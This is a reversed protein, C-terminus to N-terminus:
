TEICNTLLPRNNELQSLTGGSGKSWWQLNAIANVYRAGSGVRTPALEVTRGQWGIRISARRADRYAPYGVALYRGGDCRYTVVFPADGREAAQATAAFACAAMAVALLRIM